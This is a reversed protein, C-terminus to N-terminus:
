GPVTEILTPDVSPGAHLESRPESHPSLDSFAHIFTVLDHFSIGRSRTTTLFNTMIPEELPPSASIVIVPIDCIEKEQSKQQLVAFGDMGQMILDLLLLDPKRERLLALAHQGDSARLVRYGRGASLLIRAFFQLADADDDVVLITKVTSGLDALASLLATRTVPKMLYRLVGLQKAVQEAGPMWCAIVPTGYPLAAAYEALLSANQACADNVILAQAPSHRLEFCADEFTQLAVIEADQYYRTLLRTLTNESELVILRPPPALIPAKSQRTRPEYQNYRNVWRAANSPYDPLKEEWPLSVYVTTGQGLRSELWIKGHHLEVFRKSISLGLGNGGFRRRLSGDVQQFPEFIRAQDEPSIGPGTDAVSVVVHNEEVWMKIRVGGEETFRGANSLLNLWVQHIRTGDCFLSPITAPIETQIYLGKATFLPQVAICATEIIECLNVRDKKLALQGAEIQSLDLVDDVLKALHQSNRQIVTIDALLAPPLTVHYMQPSQTIMESFGIIMNLPTRLEHSVNAVFEEKTRRSEEAIEGIAELRETLRLLQINTAVLDQQTQKLELSQDRADELLHHMQKYSSLAWLSATDAFRLATIILAVVGWILLLAVIHAVDGTIDGTTSSASLADQVILVSALGATLLGSKRGIVLTALGSPLALLCYLTGTQDWQQALLITALCSSVLLWMSVVQYRGAIAWAALVGLLLVISLIGLTQPDPLLESTLGLATGIILLATMVMTSSEQQLELLINHQELPDTM